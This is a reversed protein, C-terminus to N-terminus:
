NKVVKFNFNNQESDIIRLTYIGNTLNEINIKEQKPKSFEQEFVIKGSFDFIQLLADSEYDEFILNINEKSPNPYIKINSNNLSFSASINYDINFTATQQCGDADSLILTYDGNALNILNATNTTFNSPGTWNYSYPAVGGNVTINIKNDIIIGNIIIEIPETIEFTDTKQCGYDDTVHLYYIGSSLNSSDAIHNQEDTWVMNLNGEGGYINLSISGDNGGFCTTPILNVNNIIIKEPNRIRYYTQYQCGITDTLVLQYDGIALSDLNLQNSFLVGDLLWSVNLGGNPSSANVNIEGFDQGQCDINLITANDVNPVPISSNITVNGFYIPCNIDSFVTFQHDGASLNTLSFQNSITDLTNNAGSWSIFYTSDQNINPFNILAIGDPSSCTSLPSTIVSSIPALSQGGIFEWEYQSTLINMTILTSDSYSLNEIGLELNPGYAFFESHKIINQKSWNYIIKDLNCVSLGSYSFIFSMSRINTIDWNSLDQNFSEAKYFMAYLSLINASLNWSNIDQNFSVAEKFMSSVHEVNSVNWSGINQNFSIAKYFMEVMSTVNSTNWNGINQNFSIAEDFMNNMNIVNSTNWNGIDQNFSIAKRFVYSMNTVNSTNWSGIDQNFSTAERFMNDMSTVNSTNWSGINQNFSTAERFMYRMNTVNSTNWNGIDQNFSSARYFMREMNVINSTNWSGIDQNFSLASWFMSFTSTVNSIDWAGIDINFSDTSMFMREMNVVNSTNWNGIDQNFVTAQTFMGDMRIVNATNWNSIDQNFFSAGKFMSNMSRVNSTNWNSIDQNFLMTFSSYEIRNSFMNFMEEVNDTNWNGFSPNGILSTCENFMQGCNPPLILTDTASVDLNKCGSFAGFMSSWAIDGWQEVDVIKLCDNGNNFFIRHFDGTIKVRYVGPNPFTITTSGTLNFLSDNILVNTTDEWYINYNYNSGLTPITIQNNYYEGPIDTKWVTVFPNQQAISVYTFLIILASLVLKKM